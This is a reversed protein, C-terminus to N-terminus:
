SSPSLKGFVTQDRRLDGLSVDLPQGPTMNVLSGLAFSPRDEKAWFAYGALRYANPTTTCLLYKVTAGPAMVTPQPFTMFVGPDPQVSAFHYTQDTKNTISVRASLSGTCQAPLPDTAAAAPVAGLGVLMATAATATVVHHMRRM